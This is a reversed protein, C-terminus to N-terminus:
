ATVSFQPSKCRCTRLTVKSRPSRRRAWTNFFRDRVQPYQDLLQQITEWTLLEIRFHGSKRHAKNLAVVEDHANKSKKATTLIAYHDIPPRFSKAKEVEGRIEAPEITKDRAHRKCQAARSRTPEMPDFIDVGNQAEGRNAYLELHPCNWHVQLLALCLLEFDEDNAPPPLEQRM